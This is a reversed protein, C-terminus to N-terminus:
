NDNLTRLFDKALPTWKDPEETTAYHGHASHIEHFVADVGADRLRQMVAPGERAPFWEDTDCLILLLKARVKDLDNEVNFRGWARYLAILSHADFERAWERATGAVILAREAESLNKDLREEFGYSKLVRIRLATLAEEIGATSYYDGNNWNPDRSLEEILRAAAPGSDFTDKPATDTVILGKM